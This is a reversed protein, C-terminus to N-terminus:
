KALWGPPCTKSAFTRIIQGKTCIVTSTNQNNTYTPSKPVPLLYFSRAIDSKGAKNESYLNLDIKKSLNATTVPISFVVSGNLLNGEVPQNQKIGLTNSFLFASNTASNGSTVVRATVVLEKGVLKSNISTPASPAKIVSGSTKSVTPILYNIKSEASTEGRKVSFFSIPVNGKVVKPDIKIAWTAVDGKIEALIKQSIGGTLKPSILYVTDPESSSLNVNINLTNGSIKIGTFIPATPKQKVVVNSASPSVTAQNKAGSERSEPNKGGLRISFYGTYDKSPIATAKVCKAIWYNLYSSSTSNSKPPLVRLDVIPVDDCAAPDGQYFVVTELSNLQDMYSNGFAKIKGITITEDSNKNTLSASWWNNDSSTNSSDWQVRLVYPTGMQVTIGKWCGMYYTQTNNVYGGDAANNCFVNAESKSTLFSVSNFIAFDFNGYYNAGNKSGLGFGVYGCRTGANMLKGVGEWCFDFHYQNAWRFPKGDIFTSTATPIIEHEIYANQNLFMNSTDWRVRIQGNQHDSAAKVPSVVTTM